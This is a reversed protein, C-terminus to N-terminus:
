AAAEAIRRRALRLAWLSGLAIGGIILFFLYRPMWDWWWDVFRVLMFLATFMAALAVVDPWRQRLGAAILAPGALIALVQYVARDWSLVLLAGFAIILAAGRGWPALERPMWRSTVAVLAAAALIPEAEGPFQTWPTRFVWLRFAALYSVLAMVGGAFPLGFRWPISVAFAFLAWVLLLHPSSRVNFLSGLMLTQLVLGACAVIAFIASVYRTREIRGAVVMIATALIPAATLLAVQGAVPLAGWIRYVFSVIAATLAAAGLLSALRMGISMQKEAEGRDVDFETAFQRLLRDHHATVAEIEAPVFPSAGERALEDLEARFAGIQDARRQAADKSPVYHGGEPPGSRSNAM